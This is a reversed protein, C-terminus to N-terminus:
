GTCISVTEEDSPVYDRLWRNTSDVEDLRIVKAEMM